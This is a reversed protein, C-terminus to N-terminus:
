SDQSYGSDLIRPVRGYISRGMRTQRRSESDYCGSLKSTAEEPWHQGLDPLGKVHMSNHDGVWPPEAEMRAVLILHINFGNWRQSRHYSIWIATKPWDEKLWIRPRYQFLDEDYKAQNTYVLPGTSPVWFKHCSMDSAFGFMSPRWQGQRTSELSEDNRVWTCTPGADTPDFNQCMRRTESYRLMRLQELDSSTPLMGAHWHAVSTQQVTSSDAQWVLSLWRLKLWYCLWQISKISYEHEAVAWVTNHFLKWGREPHFIRQDGEFHKRRCQRSHSGDFYIKAQARSLRIHRHIMTQSCRGHNPQM